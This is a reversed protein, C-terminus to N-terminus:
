ARGIECADTVLPMVFVTTDAALLELTHRASRM